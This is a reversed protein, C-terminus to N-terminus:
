EGRGQVTLRRIKGFAFVFGSNDNELYWYQYVTLCYARQPGVM